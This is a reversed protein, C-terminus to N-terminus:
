EVVDIKALDLGGPYMYSTYSGVGHVNIMFPSGGEIYHIGGEISFNTRSWQDNIAMSTPPISDGDLEVEADTLHIVTLFNFVYSDPALFTYSERYQEVPVGLAMAPDGFQPPPDTYNQGVMFQAVAVRGEGVVEFNQKTLFEVYEGKGLVVGAHVEPPDFSIENSDSGSVVRWVTDEDLDQPVNRSCLYRQGWTELPFM